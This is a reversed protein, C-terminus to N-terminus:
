CIWANIAGGTLLSRPLPPWGRVFFLCGYKLLCPLPCLWSRQSLQLSPPSRIQQSLHGELKWRVHWYTKEDQERLNEYLVYKNRSCTIRWQILIINWNSFPQAMSTSAGCGLPFSATIIIVFFLFCFFFLPAFTHQIHQNLSGTLRIWCLKLQRCLHQLRTDKWACIFTFFYM